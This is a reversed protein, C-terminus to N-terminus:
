EITRKLNRLANMLQQETETYVKYWVTPDFRDGKYAINPYVTSDIKFGSALMVERPTDVHSGIPSGICETKLELEIDKVAKVPAVGALLRFVNAKECATNESLAKALSLLGAQKDETRSGDNKVRSVFLNYLDTADLSRGQGVARALELLHSFLVIKDAKM